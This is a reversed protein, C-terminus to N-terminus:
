IGDCGNEGGGVVIDLRDWLDLENVELLDGWCGLLKCYFEFLAWDKM